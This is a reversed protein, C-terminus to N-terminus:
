RATYYEGALPTIREGEVAAFVIPFSRRSNGNVPAMVGFHLHPETSFGTNGSRAIVQGARVREGVSVLVGGPQLHVYEGLTEDPHLVLVYNGDNLFRRDPGGVTSNSRLAIVRGERAAHVPTGEPMRWDICFETEGTHSYSGHFGQTVLHATGPAYPLRYVTRGDHRALHSGYKYVYDFRYRWPRNQARAGVRFALRRSGPPVLLATPPAVTPAVNDLLQLTVSATIPTASRNTFYVMANVNTLQESYCVQAGPCVERATAVPACLGLGALAAFLSRMRM